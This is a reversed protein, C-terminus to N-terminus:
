KDNYHSSVSIVLVTIIEENVTYVLRHKQTIRRSYYGAYNHKLRKPKGTGTYPHLMLEELLKSAKKFAPPDAKQLEALDKKANPSIIIKYM